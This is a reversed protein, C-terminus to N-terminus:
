DKKQKYYIDIDVDGNIGAIRGTNSMQWLIYDGQYNTNNTYHALWVPLKNKNIWINELYYKSGYLMTDYGYKKMEKAFINFTKDLNYISTNLSKFNSWSEFDYAVPFDLKTDGLLDNIQKALSKAMEENTIDTYVYIGVKLDVEKAAQINKKYYSDIVLDKDGETFVGMRMIVFECGAKKLMKYDIDGQWKSVDIGILTNDNKYKNVIDNFLTIKKNVNTTSYGIKSVINLTLDKKVENNSQDKITYEIKYKGPKTQDFEGTYTCTPHEDYNDGYNIYDCLDKITNVQVTKTSPANILIPPTTDKINLTIDKKYKKDQYNFELTYKYEGIEEPIIVQDNLVKINSSKIFDKTNIESFVPYELDNFEIKVDDPLEYLNRSCGSLLLTSLLLIYRKKMFM